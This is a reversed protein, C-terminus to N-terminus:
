EPPEIAIAANIDTIDQEWYPNSTEVSDGQKETLTQSMRVRVAIAPLGAQDAVWMEGTAHGTYNVEGVGPLDHTYDFDTDITYRRCHIGNVTEEGAPKMASKIELPLMQGPAIEVDDPLSAELDEVSEETGWVQALAMQAEWDAQEEPTLTEKMWSGDGTRTWRQDGVTIEEMIIQGQVSVVTRGAPTKGDWEVTLETDATGQADGERMVAYLRYSDLEQAAAPQAGEATPEATATPEEGATPTQGPPSTPTAETVAEAAAEGSPATTSVCRFGYPWDPDSAYRAVCRCKEPGGGANAITGRRIRQEGSAPGTPNRAPSRGYYEADYWDSVWEAANGAVDLLGYPSADGPFSGVPATFAYGDEDDSLNARGDEFENGWPWLRGDTGRAAKEWEAETPLRGGAWECYTRAGEWAVIAPQDDANFDPNDWAEPETCAGAEVCLRFHANSM